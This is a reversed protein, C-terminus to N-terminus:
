RSSSSAEQVNSRVNEKWKRRPKLGSGESLADLCLVLSMASSLSVDCARFVEYLLTDTCRSCSRCLSDGCTKVPCLTGSCQTFSRGLPTPSRGRPWLPACGVPPQPEDGAPSHLKGPQRYSGLCVGPDGQACM